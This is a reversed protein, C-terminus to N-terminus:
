EAIVDYDREGRGKSNVVTFNAIIRKTMRRRETLLVILPPKFHDIYRIKLLKQVFLSDHGPDKKMQHM